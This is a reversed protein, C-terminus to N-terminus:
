KALAFSATGFDAPPYIYPIQPSAPTFGRASIWDPIGEPLQGSDSNATNARATMVKDYAVQILLNQRENSGTLPGVITAALSFAISDRLGIEWLAPNKNDFTYTLIPTTENALIANQNGWTGLKFRAFTSLYRPRVMDVPVGYAFLWTTQPDTSVWDATDDREALTALRLEKTATDWPAASLVLERVHDYWSRCLRAERSDETYIAVSARHNCASLALNFVSTIDAAM